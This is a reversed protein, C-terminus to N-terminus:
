QAYEQLPELLRKIPGPFDEWTAQYSAELPATVYSGSKLFLPMEPLKDRVAITEVYATVALGPDYAALLLRKEMPLEFDEKVFEDWIAKHIGFPDRDTPPFLDIVLLANGHRVLHSVREVFARLEVHSAKNGPSVIEIAAVIQRLKDRVAVRDAMKVYLAAEAVAVDAEDLSPGFTAVEPIPGSISREPLAFYDPPLLGRNLADCLKVTWSQHFAYFLGADVRTWDHVPM